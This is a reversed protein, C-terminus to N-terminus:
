ACRGGIERVGVKPKKLEPIRVALVTVAGVFLSFGVLTVVALIVFWRRGKCDGAGSETSADSM